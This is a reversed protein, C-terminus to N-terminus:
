RSAERVITILVGGRRAIEDARAALRRAREAYGACLRAAREEIAAEQEDDPLADYAADAAHFLDDRAQDRYADLDATTERAAHGLRRLDEGGVVRQGEGLWDGEGEIDHCDLCGGVGVDEPAPGLCIELCADFLDGERAVERRTEAAAEARGEGVLLICSAYGVCRDRERDVVIDPANVRRLQTLRELSFVLDDWLLPAVHTTTSLLSALRALAPEDPIAELKARATEREAIDIARSATVAARQHAVDYRVLFAELEAAEDEASPPPPEPAVRVFYGGEEAPAWGDPAQHAVRIRYAGAATESSRALADVLARCKHPDAEFAFHTVPWADDAHLYM